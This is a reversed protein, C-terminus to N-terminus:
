LSASSAFPLRRWLVVVGDDGYKVVRCQVDDEVKFWEPPTDMVVGAASQVRDDHEDDVM